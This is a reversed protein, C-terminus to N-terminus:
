RCKRVENAVRLLADVHCAVDLGCTCALDKGALEPLRELLRARKKPYFRVWDPDGYLWCRHARVVYDRAEAETDAYGAELADAITFPNGFDSTRDCIM